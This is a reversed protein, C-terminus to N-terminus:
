ATGEQLQATLADLQAQQTAIIEAQQQEISDGEAIKVLVTGDLNDTLAYPLNYASFDTVVGNETFTWGASTTVAQKVVAFEGEILVQMINRLAGAVREKRQWIYQASFTTAGDFTIIKDM